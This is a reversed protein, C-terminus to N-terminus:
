AGSRRRVPVEIRSRISMAEGKPMGGYTEMPAGAWEYGHEDTWKLLRAYTQPYDQVPGKHRTAAVQMSALAEVHVEADPVAAGHVAIAVRARLREAHTTAPNDPYIAMPRMGPRLKHERAWAYLRKYDAGFPIQDFPGRHELYAVTMSKRNHIKIRTM